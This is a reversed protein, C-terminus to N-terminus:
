VHHEELTSLQRFSLPPGLQGPGCFWLQAPALIRAPSLEGPAPRGRLLVRIGATHGGHRRGGAYLVARGDECDRLPGLVAGNCRAPYAATHGESYSMTGPALKRTQSYARLFLVGAGAPACGSVPGPDEAAVRQKTM